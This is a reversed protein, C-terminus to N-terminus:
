AYPVSAFRHYQCSAEGAPGAGVGPPQIEQGRREGLVPLKVFRCPLCHERPVSGSLLVQGVEGPLDFLAQLKVL